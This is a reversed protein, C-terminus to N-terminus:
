SSVEESSVSPASESSLQRDKPQGSEEKQYKKILSVVKAPRLMLVLALGSQTLLVLFSGLSSLSVGYMRYSVSASIGSQRWVFNAVFGLLQPLARIFFILGICVIAVKLVHDLTELRIHGVDEDRPILKSAISDSFKMFVIAAALWFAPVGITCVLALLFPWLSSSHRMGVFLPLVMPLSAVLEIIVYIAMLKLVLSALSRKTM